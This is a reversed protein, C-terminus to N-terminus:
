NVDEWSLIPPVTRRNQSIDKYNILIGLQAQYVIDIREIGDDVVDGTIEDYWPEFEKTINNSYGGRIYWGPLLWIVDQDNNDLYPIYCLEVKEVTRLHGSYIEEEFAKKASQFSLLPIDNYEIGCERYLLATIKYDSLSSIMISIRADHIKQEKSNTAKEYCEQAAQYGIGHFRQAYQFIYRGKETMREHWSVGSKSKTYRYFCGQLVTKNHVIDDISLGFVRSIESNAFSLADVFKLDNNEPNDILTIEPSFEEQYKISWNKMITQDNKYSSVDFYGNRNKLIRKYNFLVSEDIPDAAKICIIPFSKVKPIIIPANITITRWDTEYKENWYAPTIENIEVISYFLDDAKANYILFAWFVIYIFLSKRM